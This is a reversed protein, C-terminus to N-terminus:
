PAPPYFYYCSYVLFPAGVRSQDGTGWIVDYSLIGYDGVNLATPSVTRFGWGSGM